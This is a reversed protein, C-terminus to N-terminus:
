LEKQRPLQLQVLLLCILLNDKLLIGTVTQTMVIGLAQEMRQAGYEAMQEVRGLIVICPLTLPTELPPVFAPLSFITGCILVQDTKDELCLIGILFSMMSKVRGCEARYDGKREMDVLMFMTAFVTAYFMGVVM